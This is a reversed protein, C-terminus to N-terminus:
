ESKLITLEELMMYYPHMMKGEQILEEETPETMTALQAELEAVRQARLDEMTPVIYLEM